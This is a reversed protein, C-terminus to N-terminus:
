LREVREEVERAGLPDDGRELGGVRDGVRPAERGLEAAALQEHDIERPAAVFVRRLHAFQKRLSRAALRLRAFDMSITRAALRLRAFDMSITRAALRLRADGLPRPAGVCSGARPDSRLAARAPPSPASGTRSPPRDPGRWWRPVRAW